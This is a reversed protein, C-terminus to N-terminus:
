ASSACDIKSRRGGCRCVYVNGTRSMQAHFLVQMLVDGM